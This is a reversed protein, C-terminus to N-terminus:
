TYYFNMLFADEFVQAKKDGTVSVGVDGLYAYTPIAGIEECFEIFDSVDLLEEDADIYISGIVYSKFIGLLFERAPENETLKAGLAYMLSRETVSGGENYLTYPLVDSDFDPFIGYPMLKTNLNDLMKRNRENRKRRYPTFFRQVEDIKRHPIGHMAMYAVSKQDPNNISMGNYPTNKFSCRCELGVTVPFNIIKSAEIFEKTGAASDHDM